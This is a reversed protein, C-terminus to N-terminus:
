ASMPKGTGTLETILTNVSTRVTGVDTVLTAVKARLAIMDDLDLLFQTRIATVDALLATYDLKLENALTAASAAEAQVYGVGPATANAAAIATATLAAPDAATVAAPATTTLAAIAAVNDAQVSVEDGVTDVSGNDTWAVDISSPTVLAFEEDSLYVTTGTEPVLTGWPTIVSDIL